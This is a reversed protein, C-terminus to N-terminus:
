RAILCELMFDCGDQLSRIIRTFTSAKSQSNKAVLDVDYSRDAYSVELSGLKEGEKIPAKIDQNIKYKMTPVAGDKVVFKVNITPYLEVCGQSITNNKITQVPFETNVVDKFDYFRTVYYILDSMASNRVDTSDAGMVIGIVRFDDKEDLAKLDATTTLCYGAEDTSGTKLGDVGDIDDVLPITSEKDIDYKKNEIKRIKAYELTEPYKELIKRVLNFLDRASSTNQTDDDTQLGSSNYFKQSTLDLDAAKQNMLKVFDSERGAVVQSLQYACDNGSVVMLGQLLEEVTYEQDKQIGLASNGPAAYEAAEESIKVKQNMSVEGAKIADKVLFYTMLKSMSAIPLPDDANKECFIEGDDQNGILYSKVQDDVGVIQGNDDDAFSKIPSVILCLVLIFIRLTKKYKM